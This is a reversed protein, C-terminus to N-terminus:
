EAPGRPRIPSRQFDQTLHLNVDTNPDYYEDDTYIVDGLSNQWREPYQNTGIEVENTYPNVYEEKEMLTLFMDNNIEWNTTAQHDLMERELRQIEAQTKLGIKGREIQGQIEGAIWQPNIRISGQITSLLPEWMGFGSEPARLAITEKNGWMGAGLTGWDEIVAFLKEKYRVGGENYTVTMTGADYTFMSPFIFSQLRNTYKQALQPLPRQEIVQINTADPHLQPFIVQSLFQDASMLPWVTMGQYNSGPPFLGYDAAPMNKSDFYMVDPMFYIGVSFDDDSAVAFNVKAAISNTPGGAALPDVRTIGGQTGWGEPVLITFAQETQDLYRKLVVTGLGEGSTEDPDETLEPVFELEDDPYETEEPIFELEDDLDETGGTVFGWGSQEEQTEEPTFVPEADLEKIDGVLFGWGGGPEATAEPLDGIAGAPEEVSGVLFGSAGGTTFTLVYPTVTVREDTASKFDMYRESNIGLSYTTNPALDVPLVCTRNDPFYPDDPVEPFEGQDMIIFAYSDQKVPASFKVVIETITPDVDTDGDVPTTHTVIIGQPLPAALVGGAGITLAIVLLLMTLLRLRKVIENKSMFKGM